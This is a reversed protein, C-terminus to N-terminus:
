NKVFKYSVKAASFYLNYVGKALSSVDISEENGTVNQRLVAQGLMNYVTVNETIDFDGKINLVSTTPNPYLVFNNKVAENVGLYPLVTLQFTRTVSSTGSTAVMTITYVGPALVTGANPTQTLAADCNDTIPNALTAYSPLTYTNSVGAQVTQNVMAAMTLTLAPMIYGRDTFKETMVKIDACPFNMNIAAQRVARAANQQNTSSNTLRLGELFAKDTETRGIVDYIQMLATAWIQGDDHGSGGVLDTPYIGFYDTTRGDWCTNHGDWSFMYQYAADTSSWQNLSRSYSQAWYDGNGEGIYNSSSGNTLWDHLGHGLEHLVVDADEADDVCGEGFALQDSSPIFHSNDAGSLGSPDFQLVGSNLQPLCVVGLTQNIYRMSKDLQYFANAAEFGDQNRNFNFDPTAQTFLGKNPAESDVIVVYSSKLKYVGSTLDIEPLVVSTRANNLQTTAADNGDVYGTTGYAVHAYSLPDSMYVMATGPVFALPAMAVPPNSKPNKAITKKHHYVAVDKTSLVNASQADVLVEWSGNGSAPNTVIRYVLKTQDNVKTVILDNEAVTYAGEIKLSAVSADLADQKTIAPSTAITQISGDVSDSIFALEDSPNFNIVIESHYVPVDNMMQQFRLTEGIQSKVVYSLKFTSAPNVNLESAHNRIWERAAAEHKSEQAQSTASVVILAAVTFLLKLKM